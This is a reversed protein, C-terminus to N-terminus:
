AKIEVPVFIYEDGNKELREPKWDDMSFRWCRFKYYDYIYLYHNSVFIERQYEIDSKKIYAREIFNGTLINYEMLRFAGTTVFGFFWFIRGEGCCIGEQWGGYYYSMEGAIEEFQTLEQKQKTTMDYYIIKCVQRSNEIGQIDRVVFDYKGVGWNNIVPNKLTILPEMKDSELNIDEIYASDYKNNRGVRCYIHKGDEDLCPYDKILYCSSDPFGCIMLPNQVEIEHANKQLTDLDMEVVKISKPYFFSTSDVYFIRHKRVGWLKCYEIECVSEEKGTNSDMRCLTYEPHFFDESVSKIYYVDDGEQVVGCDMQIDTSMRGTKVCARRLLVKNGEVVFISTRNLLMTPPEKKEREVRKQEEETQEAEIRAQEATEKEAQEAELRAQEKRLKLEEIQKLVAESVEGLLAECMEKEYEETDKRSKILDEIKDAIEDAQRDRLWRVLRGKDAYGLTKELDFKERLQALTHVKEGNKMELPFLIKNTVM